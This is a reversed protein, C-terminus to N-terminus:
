EPAKEIFKWGGIISSITGRGEVYDHYAALYIHILIFIMFSWMMIHHWQRVVADGGMLPIVWAFLPSFWSKSMATYLAFGTAVQFIFVLYVFIYIIGALANVGTSRLPLRCIQLIDMCVVVWVERLQRYTHPIYSKWRAFRNGVFGWYFRGIFNFALIYGFLFHIFRVVGFWYQFSAESSSQLALPKGILYGTVSLGVVCLANTWHFLRMPLEWVYIQNYVAYKPKNM